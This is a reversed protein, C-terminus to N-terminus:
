PNGPAQVKCKVAELVVFNHISLETSPIENYCELGGSCKDTVEWSVTTVTVDQGMVCLGTCICHSRTEKHVSTLSQSEGVFLATRLITLM